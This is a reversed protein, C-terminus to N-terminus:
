SFLWYALSGLVILGALVGTAGFMEYFVETAIILKQKNGLGREPKRHAASGTNLNGCIACEWTEQRTNWNHARQKSCEQCMLAHQRDEDVTQSM